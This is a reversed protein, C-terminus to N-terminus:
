FSRLQETRDPRQGEAPPHVEYGMARLTRAAESPCDRTAAALQNRRYEDRSRALTAAWDDGCEAGFESSLMQLVDELCPRFRSGGVPFHLTAMRAGRMIDSTSRRRAGAEGALAMAMVLHDRHAHVHLHADPLDESTGREYEYRFIPDGSAKPGGHVKISSEDVRLYRGAHDWTCRFWADVSLLGRGGVTVPIVESPKVSFKDDLQTAEFPLPRGLFASVLESLRQAFGQAQAELDEPPSSAPNM